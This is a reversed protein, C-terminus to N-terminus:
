YVGRARYEQGEARRSGGFPVLRMSGGQAAEEAEAEADFDQALGRLAEAVARGDTRLDQTQIVKSVLVESAAIIRLARASARNASGDFTKLLLKLDENSLAPDDGMDSINLRVLPVLESHAM